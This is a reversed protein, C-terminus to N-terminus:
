CYENINLAITRDEVLYWQQTTLIKEIAEVTKLDQDKLFINYVLVTGLILTAISTAGIIRKISIKM